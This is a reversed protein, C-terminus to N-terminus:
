TNNVFGDTGYNIVSQRQNTGTGQTVSQLRGRSDYSYNVPEIGPIRSSTVRGQIDITSFSQRGEPSTNTYTRTGFDFVSTSTRLNETIRYTLSQISSPDAFATSYQIEQKVTKTLMRGSPLKIETRTPIPSLMGYRIDPGNTVTTETDDAHRTITTEDNRYETTTVTGDPATVKTVSANQYRDSVSTVTKRGMATEITAVVTGEGDDTKTLQMYGGAADEDKILRGLEDYTMISENGNPDAFTALLGGPHYTITYARNEPDAISSIYGDVNIGLTTRQGYPSIVALPTGDATREIV